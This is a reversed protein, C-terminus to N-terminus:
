VLGQQQSLLTFCGATLMHDISKLLPLTVRDVKQFDKFIDLLVDAAMRVHEATAHCFYERLSSSAYKVQLLPLFLIAIFAFLM